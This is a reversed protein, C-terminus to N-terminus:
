QEYQIEEEMPPPNPFLSAIWRFFSDFFSVTTYSAQEGASEITERAQQPLSLSYPVTGYYPTDYAASLVGGGYSTPGTYYSGTATLPATSASPGNPPPKPGQIPPFLKGLYGRYYLQYGVVAILGWKVIEGTDLRGLASKRAM